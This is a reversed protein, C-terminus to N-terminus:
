DTILKSEFEIFSLQYGQGFEVILGVSEYYQPSTCPCSETDQSHPLVSCIPASCQLLDRRCSCDVKLASECFAPYLTWEWFCRRPSCVLIKMQIRSRHVSHTYGTGKWHKCCICVEIFIYITCYHCTWEHSGALCEVIVGDIFRDRWTM